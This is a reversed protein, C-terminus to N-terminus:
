GKKIWFKFVDGEEIYFFEYGGSKVWVVFDNKVGKDMVYIELM